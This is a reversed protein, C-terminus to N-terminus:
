GPKAGALSRPSADPSPAASTRKFRERVALWVGAVLTLVCIVRAARQLQFFANIGDLYIQGYGQAWIGALFDNVQKARWLELDVSRVDADLESFAAGQESRTMTGLNGAVHTRLPTAIESRVVFPATGVDALLRRVGAVAGADTVTPVPLKFDALFAVIDGDTLSQRRALREVLDVGEAFGQEGALHLYASVNGRSFAEYHAASTENVALHEPLKPISRFGMVLTGASLGCVRAQMAEVGLTVYEASVLRYDPNVQWRKVAEGFARVRRMDGPGMGFGLAATFAVVLTLVAV